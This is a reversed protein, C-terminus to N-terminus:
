STRRNFFSILSTMLSLGTRFTLYKFVNLFSYQDVLSTLFEFANIKGKTLNASIKNLGTANSGKIM